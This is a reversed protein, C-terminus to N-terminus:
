SAAQVIHVDKAAFGKATKVLTFELVDGVSPFTYGTESIESFHVFVDDAVEVCEIFGYGKVPSFWKTTGRMRSTSAARRQQDTKTNRLLSMTFARLRTAQNVGEDQEDFTVKVIRGAERFVQLSEETNSLVDLLDLCYADMRRSNLYPLEQKSALVRFLMLMQHKFRKFWGPIEQRYFHAYLTHYAYGSVYYPFLSHNEVFIKNRYAKLLEGYYRHTSHPENLFMSLFSKLQTTLTVIQNKKIPLTDYQKSRREYYLRMPKDKGYTAYFEELNKQFPTLSEFAEPNIGTQRNTAKIIENTIEINDTVILKCPVFVKDTLHEQNLYLIHSTQCGNVVQYDRLKFATGVKNISKAVITVGNNLLAFRESQQADQLTSIIEKNVSNNGQYDRVNDDFLSRRLKGENDVILKLYETCPLIGIYAEQVGDMNPLITHRQFDVETIIKRKLEKYIGRITESDLPYFKVDSFLDTDRLEALDTEIRARLNIDETWKGTTAYYLHCVPNQDMDISSAYVHEKLEHFLRIDDNMLLSPKDAFFSKVGYLFNGIDAGNFRSATKTQIFIFRVDFRRFADKFYNIDETALALHENVVIAVGDLGIDNGGGVSTADLDFRDLNEKSIVCYNVFQEFGTALDVNPLGEDELFGDLYSKLIRDQM